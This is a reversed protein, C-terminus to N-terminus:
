KLINLLDYTILENLFDIFKIFCHDAFIHIKLIYNTIEGTM